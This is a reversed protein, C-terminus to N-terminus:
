IKKVIEDFVTLTHEGLTTEKLLEKRINACTIVQISDMANNVFKGIEFFYPKENRPRSPRYRSAQVKELQATLNKIVNEKAEKIKM